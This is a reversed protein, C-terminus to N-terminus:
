IKIKPRRYTNNQMCNKVEERPKEATPAYTQIININMPQESKQILVNRDSLPFFSILKFQENLVVGVGYRHDSDSDNNGSYFFRKISCNLPEFPGPKAGNSRM